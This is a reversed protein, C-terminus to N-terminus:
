QAQCTHKSETGPPDASGGIAAPLHEESSDSLASGTSSVIKGATIALLKGKMYDKWAGATSLAEVRRKEIKAKHKGVLKGGVLGTAGGTFVGICLGAGGGMVAGIPISLGFTFFSPIVGMAAGIAAGAVFGTAGASTGLVAASAIGHSAGFESIKAAASEMYIRIQTSKDSAFNLTNTKATKAYDSVTSAKTEAMMRFGSCNKKIRAYYPELTGTVDGLVDSLKVKIDVYADGVKGKLLLFQGELKIWHAKVKLLL